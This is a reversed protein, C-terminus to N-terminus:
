SSRLAARSVVQRMRTTQETLRDIQATIGQVEFEADEMANFIELMTELRGKCRGLRELIGLCAEMVQSSNPETVNAVSGLLTEVEALDSSNRDWVATSVEVTLLARSNKKKRLQTTTAQRQAM